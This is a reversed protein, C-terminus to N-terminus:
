RKCRQRAGLISIECMPTNSSLPTDLKGVWFGRLGGEVPMGHVSMAARSWMSEYMRLGEPSAASIM